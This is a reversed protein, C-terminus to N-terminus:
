GAHKVGWYHVMRKEEEPTVTPIGLAEADQVLVNILQGMQAADFESSGFYLQVNAWGERKSASDGELVELQRGIHGAEWSERVRDVIATKVAIITSVGGVDRIANRYVKTPTWHGKPDTLQMRETIQGILEWAYRNARLSRPSSYKKMKVEVDKERLSEFLERPDEATTFSVVWGDAGRMLDRLKAKM